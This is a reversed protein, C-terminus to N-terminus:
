PLDEHHPKIKLQTCLSVLHPFLNQLCCHGLQLLPLIQVHLVKMYSIYQKNVKNLIYQSLRFLAKLIHRQVLCKRVKTKNSYTYVPVLMEFWTSCRGFIIESKSSREMETSLMSSNQCLVLYNLKLKKIRLIIWSEAEKNEPNPGQSYKTQFGGQFNM